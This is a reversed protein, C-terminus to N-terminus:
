RPRPSRPIRSRARPIVDQLSRLFGRADAVVSTQGFRALGAATWGGRPELSSLLAQRRAEQAAPLPFRGAGRLLWRLENIARLVDFAEFIATALDGGKRWSQGPFLLETVEQGAGYCDFAACGRMGSEELEHHIGCRSTEADLRPCPVHAPKRFRFAASPEFGLAVCCLGQCRACDGVLDAM